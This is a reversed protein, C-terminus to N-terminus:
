KKNFKDIAEKLVQVQTGPKKSTGTTVAATAPATVAKAPVATANALAPAATATAILPTVAASAVPQQMQEELTPSVKMKVQLKSVGQIIKAMQEDQKKREDEKSLKEQALAAKLKEVEAKSALLSESLSAIRATNQALETQGSKNGNIAMVAVIVAIVAVVPAFGDLVYSAILKLKLLVLIRLLQTNSPPTAAEAAGRDSSKESEQAPDEVM